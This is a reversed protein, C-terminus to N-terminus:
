QGLEKVVAAGSSTVVFVNTRKELYGLKELSLFALTPGPGKPVLGNPSSCVERLWRSQAPRLRKRTVEGRSAAEAIEKCVRARWATRYEEECVKCKRLHFGNWVSSYTNESNLPHGKSCYTKAANIAAPGIGRLVNERPTVPELHSPNVCFTNRCLHDLVLGDPIPGSLAKYVVRHARESRYVGYNNSVTGMWIWCGSNPEPFIRDELDAPLDSVTDSSMPVSRPSSPTM